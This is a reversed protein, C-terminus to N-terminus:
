PPGQLSMQIHQLFPRLELLSQTLETTVPCKAPDHVANFSNDCSVGYSTVTGIEFLLAAVALLFTAIFLSTATSVLEDVYM